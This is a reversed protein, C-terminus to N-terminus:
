FICFYEVAKAHKFMMDLKKATIAM